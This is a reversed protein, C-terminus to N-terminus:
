FPLNGIAGWGNELHCDFPEEGLAWAMHGEPFMDKRREGRESIM